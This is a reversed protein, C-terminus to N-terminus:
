CRYGSSTTFGCISRPPWLVLVSAAVVCSRRRRFACLINYRGTPGDFAHDIWSDIPWSFGHVHNFGICDDLSGHSYRDDANRACSRENFYDCLQDRRDSLWLSLAVAILWLSAGWDTLNYEAVASLPPYLGPECIRWRTRLFVHIPCSCQTFFKSPYRNLRPFVMDDCGIMLPILINGFAAILVPMAVWFIMISGHNTILMNYEGPGVTGYLPVEMGPFALQMRFAYAFYGGVIAMFMGTFMYQLGIIKHDTSFFYKMIFSQEHHDHGHAAHSDHTVTTQGM